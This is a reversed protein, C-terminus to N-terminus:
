RLCQALPPHPLLDPRYAPASRSRPPPVFRWAAVSGTVVAGAGDLAPCPECPVRLLADAAATVRSPTLDLRENAACRREGFRNILELLVLVGRGAAGTLALDPLHLPGFRFIDQAVPVQVALTLIGAVSCIVVLLAPKPYGVARLLSSGHARGGVNPLPRLCAPACRTPWGLM